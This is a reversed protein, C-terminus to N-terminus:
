SNDEDKVWKGEIFKGTRKHNKELAAFFCKALFLDEPEEARLGQDATIARWVNFKADKWALQFLDDIYDDPYSIVSVVITSFVVDGVELEFEKDYDFGWGKKNSAFRCEELEEQLVALQEARNTNNFFDREHMWDCVLECIGTITSSNM